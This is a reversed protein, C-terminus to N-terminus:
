NRGPTPSPNPFDSTPDLGAKQRARQLLASADDYRTDADAAIGYAAKLLDARRAGPPVAADHFARAADAYRVLARDFAAAVPRLAEPAPVAAVTARIRALDAVWGEARKAFDPASVTGAAFDNVTPKMDQEVVRGGDKLPDLIAKQYTVVQVSTLAPHDHRTAVYATAAVGSLVVVAAAAIAVARRAAM